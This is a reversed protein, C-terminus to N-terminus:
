QSKYLGAYVGNKQLLMEHTGHEIITKNGMVYILDAQQITSLRHSIVLASRNGLKQKINVFLEHEAITDLASTGEDLIILQSKSYLARAIALKQWQGVSIEHGNEFIRGLVTDYQDPFDNIYSAAGADEVAKKIETANIPAYINGFWINENA